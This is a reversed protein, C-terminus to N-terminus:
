DKYVGDREKDIYGGDYACVGFRPSNVIPLGAYDEFEDCEKAHKKACKECFLSDEDWGHITCIEQAPKKGCKECMIKLPENRSLLVINEPAKIKYSEEVTIQLETSSGFDYSYNITQGKYLAKNATKDPDIEGPDLEDFDYEEFVNNFLRERHRDRSKQEEEVDIFSSLHGCCELWIDRLFEDIEEIKTKGNVWLYLFYASKEYRPNTVIKLLFSSDVIGMPKDLKALHTKLHRNIGRQTYTKNCFICVGESKIKTNM